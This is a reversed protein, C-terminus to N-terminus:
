VQTYQTNEQTDEEVKNEEKVEEEEKYLFYLIGITIASLGLLILILWLGYIPMFFYSLYIVARSAGSYIKGKKKREEFAFEGKKKNARKVSYTMIYSLIFLILPSNLPDFSSYSIKGENSIYYEGIIFRVKQGSETYFSGFGGLVGTSDAKVSVDKVNIMEEFDSENKALAYFPTFFLANNVVDRDGNVPEGRILMRIYIDGNSDVSGLLGQVDDSDKLIGNVDDHEPDAHYARIFGVYGCDFKNDEIVPELKRKFYYSAITINIQTVNSYKMEGEAMEKVKMRLVKAIDGSIHWVLHAGFVSEYNPIDLLQIDQKLEIEGYPNSSNALPILAPILLILAIILKSAKM